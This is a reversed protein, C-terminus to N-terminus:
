PSVRAGVRPRGDRGLRAGPHPLLHAALAILVGGAAIRVAFGMGSTQRMWRRWAVDDFQRWIVTLGVVAVLAPGVLGDSIGRGTVQLFLLVGVGVM